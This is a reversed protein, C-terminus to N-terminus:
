RSRLAEIWSAVREANVGFDKVGVLQRSFVTVAVGGEVEVLSVSAADPFAFVASRTVYTAYTEALDGALKQTRPTALIIQELADAVEAKSGSM